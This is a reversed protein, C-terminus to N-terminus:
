ESDTKFRLVEGVYIESIFSVNDVCEIEQDIKPKLPLEREGVLKKERQDIEKKFRDEAIQM